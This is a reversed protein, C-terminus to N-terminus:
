PPSTLLLECLTDYFHKIRWRGYTELTERDAELFGFGHRFVQASLASKWATNTVVRKRDLKRRLLEVEGENERVGDLPAWDAIESLVMMLAWVQYYWASTRDASYEPHRYMDAVAPRALDLVYPREYHAGLFVFSETRLASHNIQFHVHLSRVQTAVTWALGRIAGDSPRAVKRLVDRLDIPSEACEYFIATRGGQRFLGNIKLTHAEEARGGSTPLREEVAELDPRFIKPSETTWELLGTTSKGGKHLRKGRSRGNPGEPKQRINEIYELM